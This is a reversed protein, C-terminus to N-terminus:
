AIPKKRPFYISAVVSVIIFGFIVGISILTPIKIYGSVLMKVGVWVLIGALAYNIYEFMEMVGNVAFYLSRLGLIAFINSTLVIFPDTTIALIAPISDVAFIIDTLEIMVLALFLPTLHRIGNIKVFFSEGVFDPTIKYFRKIFKIISNNEIDLKKDTGRLMSLGTFVLFGGFLYIMWHFKNILAVGAFIFIVRFVVAGLIGWFLVRHQYQSPVKFYTFILSIVFINDISLTKEVIYGTLYEMGKQSGMSSYIWANFMLSIAVWVATWILSEKISVTHAKKHFVGLDLFLMFTVISAFSGWVWVSHTDFM